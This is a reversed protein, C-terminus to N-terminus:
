KGAFLKAMVRRLGPKSEYFNGCDVIIQQRSWDDLLDKSDELGGNIWAKFDKATFTPSSAIGAAMRKRDEQSLDVLSDRVKQEVVATEDLLKRYGVFNCSPKDYLAQILQSAARIHEERVELHIGDQTSLMFGAFAAGIRALKYRGEEILFLPISKHYRNALRTAERYALDIAPETFVVQDPKRSWVWALRSRGAWRELKDADAVPQPRKNIKSADVDSTACICVLDYRRIDAPDPIRDRMVEIGHPYSFMETVTRYDSKPDRQKITPPNALWLKRVRCLAESRNAAKTIRAVGSSRADTLEAMERSDPFEDIISVEGDVQPWVGWSVRPRGSKYEIAGLLGGRTANEGAVKENGVVYFDAIRRIIDSKGVGTDGIALGELWGREVPHGDFNFSLVSHLVIMTMAHLEVRGRVGTVENALKSCYALLTVWPDGKEVRQLIQIPTTSADITDFWKAEPIASAAVLCVLSDRPNPVCRAKLAYIYSPEPAIPLYCDTPNQAAHKRKPEPDMGEVVYIDRLAAIEITLDCSAPLRTLTRAVHLHHKEGANTFDVIAQADPPITFEM